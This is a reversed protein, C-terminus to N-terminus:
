NVINKECKILREFLESSSGSARLRDAFGPENLLLSLRGLLNMHTVGDDPSALLFILDCKRDDLAGLDIPTDLTAVVVTARRVAPSKAHPIAIGEAIGCHGCALRAKLDCMYDHESTIANVESLKQVMAQVMDIENKAKLKILMAKVDLSYRLMFHKQINSTFNYARQNQRLFQLNNLINRYFAGDLKYLCKYLFLAGLLLSCILIIELIMEFPLPMIYTMSLYLINTMDNKLFLACSVFMGLRYATTLYAFVIADSRMSLKFEGYDVTDAVMTTMSVKAFGMGINIFIFLVYLVYQASQADLDQVLSHLVFAIGACLSGNIFIRTRRSGRACWPFLLMSGLQSIFGLMLLSCTLANGLLDNNIFFYSLLSTMMSFSAYELIAIFFMTMLQDNQFFVQVLNSLSLKSIYDPNRHVCADQAKAKHLKDSTVQNYSQLTNYRRFSQYRNSSGANIELSSPTANSQAFTAQAIGSSPLNETLASTATNPHHDFVAAAIGRSVQLGGLSTEALAVSSQNSYTGYDSQAPDFDLDYNPNYLDAHNEQIAQYRAAANAFQKSDQATRNTTNLAADTETTSTFNSSSLTSAREGHTSLTAYDADLTTAANNAQTSTATNSSSALTFDDPTASAGTAKEADDPTKPSQYTYLNGQSNQRYARFSKRKSYDTRTFWHTQHYNICLIFIVQSVVLIVGAVGLLYYYVNLEWTFVNLTPSLLALVAVLIVQRGIFNGASPMTAALNRTHANSSFSSVLVLYPLQIFLFCCNILIFLCALYFSLSQTTLLPLVFFCSSCLLTSIVGIIIWLKYKGLQSKCNDFVLGLLLACVSEILLSSLYTSIIFSYHFHLVQVCYVLILTTIVGHALNKGILGVSYTLKDWLGVKDQPFYRMIMLLPLGHDLFLRGVPSTLKIKTSASSKM